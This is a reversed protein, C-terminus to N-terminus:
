RGTRVLDRLADRFVCFSRSRNREPDMHPAVRRACDIKALGARYYGAKQLVRELREATGGRLADPNRYTSKSALTAPVGPFAMALAEMDGLFWAELEEVAIRNVVQAASAVATARTRLGAQVAHSELRDKLDRCDDDDRDVLVIICWDHPLWHAYGQLEGPLSSLLDQKGQFAHIAFSHEVGLIRPILVQLAAEASPEEVLCEIHM